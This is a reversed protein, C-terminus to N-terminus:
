WLSCPPRDVGEQRRRGGWPIASRWMLKGRDAAIAADSILPDGQHGGLGGPAPGGWWHQGRDAAIAADSALPAGRSTGTRAPARGTVSKPRFIMPLMAAGNM